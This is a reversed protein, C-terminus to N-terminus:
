VEACATASVRTLRGAAAIQAQRGAPTTSKAYRSVPRALGAATLEIAGGAAEDISYDTGETLM